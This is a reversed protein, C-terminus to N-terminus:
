EFNFADDLPTPRMDKIYEREWVKDDEYLEMSGWM